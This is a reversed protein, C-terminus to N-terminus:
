RIFVGEYLLICLIAFVVGYVLGYFGAEAGTM